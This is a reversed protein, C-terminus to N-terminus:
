RFVQLYARRAMESEAPEVRGDGSGAKSGLPGPGLLFVGPPM